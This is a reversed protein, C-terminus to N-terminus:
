GEMAERIREVAAKLNERSTAYNMRAYEPANCGFAEGPVIIVGKKAKALADKVNVFDYPGTLVEFSGDRTIRELPAGHITLPALRKYEQYEEAIRVRERIAIIYATM